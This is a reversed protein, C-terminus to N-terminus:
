AIPPRIMLRRPIAYRGVIRGTDRFGYREYFAIARANFHIVGLKIPTTEGLWLLAADMLAPAVGKGHYEPAVILWDLEPLAPETRDTIAFGALGRAAHRVVFVARAPHGIAGLCTAPAMVAIGRNEARQTETLDPRDFANQIATSVFADIDAFDEPQGPEAAFSM